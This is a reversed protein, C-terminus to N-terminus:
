YILSKKKLLIMQFDEWPYSEMLEINIEIIGHEELHSKISTLYKYYPYLGDFIDRMLSRM